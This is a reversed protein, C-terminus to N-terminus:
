QAPIKIIADLLRIADYLSSFGMQSKYEKRETSLMEVIKEVHKKESKLDSLLNPMLETLSYDRYSDPTSGTVMIIQRYTTNLSNVLKNIEGLIKGRNGM